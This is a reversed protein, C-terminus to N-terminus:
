NDPTPCLLKKGSLYLLIYYVIFSCMCKGDPNLLEIGCFVEVVFHPQVLTKQRLIRLFHGVTLNAPIM